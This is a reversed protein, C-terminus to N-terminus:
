WFGKKGQSQAGDKQTKKKKKKKDAAAQGATAASAEQAEGAQKEQRRRKNEAKIKHELPLKGRRRLCRKSFEDYLAGCRHVTRAARRALLVPTLDEAHAGTGLLKPAAILHM